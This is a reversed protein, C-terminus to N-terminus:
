PEGPLIVLLYGGQDNVRCCFCHGELFCRSQVLWATLLPRPDCLKVCSPDLLCCLVRGECHPRFAELGSCGPSSILGLDAVLLDGVRNGSTQLERLIYIVKM